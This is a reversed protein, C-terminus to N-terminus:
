TFILRPASLSCENAAVFRRSCCVCPRWFEVSSLSPVCRVPTDKSALDTIVFRFRPLALSAQQQGPRMRSVCFSKLVRVRMCLCVCVTVGQRTKPVSVVTSFSVENLNALGSILTSSAKGLITNEKLYKGSFGGIWSVCRGSILAVTLPRTAPTAVSLCM